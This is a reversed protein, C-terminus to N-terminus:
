ENGKFNDFILLYRDAEFTPDSQVSCLCGDVPDSEKLYNVLKNQRYLLIKKKLLSRSNNSIGM